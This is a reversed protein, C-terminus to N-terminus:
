LMASHKCFPKLMTKLQADERIRSVGWETTGSVGFKADKSAYADRILIFAASTVDAPVSPWGWTGSVRVLARRSVPWTTTLARIETYAWPQGDLLGNLPELQYDTAALTTAFSGDASLDTTITLGSSSALDDIDLTWFSKAAVDRSGTSQMFVRGCYREVARSGGTIAIQIESTHGSPVSFMTRFDAISVFDAM